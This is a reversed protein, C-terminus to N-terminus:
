RVTIYPRIPDLIGHSIGAIELLQEISSFGGLAERQNLISTARATGIQHLTRLQAYTAANLCLLGDDIVAVSAGPQVAIHATVTGDELLTPVYIQKADYLEAAGNIGARFAQATYGGAAEIAHIVRASAPLTFVGPRYVAGVVDVVVYVPPPPSNDVTDAAYGNTVAPAGAFISEGEDVGRSSPRLGNFIFLGGM